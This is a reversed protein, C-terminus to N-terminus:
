PPLARSINSNFGVTSFNYNEVYNVFTDIDIQVDVSKTSASDIIFEADERENSLEVTDDSITDVEIEELVEVEEVIDASSYCYDLDYEQCSISCRLDGRDYGFDKCSMGGLDGTDCVEGGEIERNGCISISVTATVTAIGNAYIKINFGFLFLISTILILPLKRKLFSYKM